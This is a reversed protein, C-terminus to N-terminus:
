SRLDQNAQSLMRNKPEQTVRRSFVVLVVKKEAPSVLAPFFFRISECTIFLIFKDSHQSSNQMINNIFSALLHFKVKNLNVQPLRM